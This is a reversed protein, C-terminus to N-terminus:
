AALARTAHLDLPVSTRVAIYLWENDGSRRQILAVTGVKAERMMRDAVSSLDRRKEDTLKKLSETRDHALHGRYYAVSRGQPADVLWDVITNENFPVAFPEIMTNTYSM